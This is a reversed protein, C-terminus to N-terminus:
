YPRTPESIHILSLDHIVSVAAELRGDREAMRIVPICSLSGLMLVDLFAPFTILVAQKREPIPQLAHSLFILMEGVYRHPDAPLTLSFPPSEASEKLALELGLHLMSWLHWTDRWPQPLRVREIWQLVIPGVGAREPFVHHLLLLLAKGAEASAKRKDVSLAAADALGTALQAMVSALALDEEPAPPFCAPDPPFGSALTLGLVYSAEIIDDFRDPAPMLRDLLAHKLPMLQSVQFACLSYHQVEHAQVLPLFDPPCDPMIWIQGLGPLFKAWTEGQPSPFGYGHLAASPVHPSPPKEQEKGPTPSIRVTTDLQLEKEIKLLCDTKLWDLHRSAALLLDNKKREPAKILREAADCFWDDLLATRCNDCSVEQRRLESMLEGCFYILLELTEHILYGASAQRRRKTLERLFVLSEAYIRYAACPSGTVPPGFRIGQKRLAKSVTRINQDLFQWVEITCDTRGDEDQLWLLYVNQHLGLTLVSLLAPVAPVVKEPPAYLFDLVFDISRVILEHPDNPRALTFKETDKRGENSGVRHSLHLLLMEFLDHATKWQTDPEFSHVCDLVVPGQNPALPVVSFLATTLGWLADERIKSESRGSGGFQALRVAEKLVRIGLERYPSDIEPPNDVDVPRGFALPHSAFCLAEVLDRFDEHRPHGGDEVLFNRLPLLESPRFGTHSAHVFEEWLVGEVEAKPIRPNTWVQHYEPIYLALWRHRHGPFAYGPLEKDRM